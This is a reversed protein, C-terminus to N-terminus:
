VLVWGVLIVLGFCICGWVLGFWVVFWLCLGFDDFLIDCWGWLVLTWAVGVLWVMTIGRVYLVGCFWIGCALECDSGGCSLRLDVWFGVGKFCCAGVM